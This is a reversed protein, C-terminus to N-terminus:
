PESPEVGLYFGGTAYSGGVVRILIDNAGDRLYLQSRRGRHEDNTAADWWARTQKSAFGLFSGNVWIALDDISAISLVAESARPLDLRTHFYAVKRGGRFETVLGTHVAGRHDAEFPRWGVMRGDDEVQLDQDFGSTEIVLSHSALPGMVSWQTSYRERQYPVDPVPQGQYSFGEISRAVINDVQVAAGPNRPKFGFGGRKGIPAPLTMAPTRLDGVYLHAETGVVELAFQQWEGITIAREGELETRLEPYLTRGVNTDSHLNAQLYSGNGKIYLSGFDIRRGDDVYRYIFGLYNHEDTPFLVEGEIRVDAWDESGRILAYVPADVVQLQLAAGDGDARPVISQGEGMPFVWQELEADFREEFLAAGGRAELMEQAGVASPTPYGLLTLPALLCLFPRANM